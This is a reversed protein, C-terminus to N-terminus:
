YSWRFLTTFEQLNCSNVNCLVWCYKKTTRYFAGLIRCYKAFHEVPKRYKQVSIMRHDETLGFWALGPRRTIFLYAGYFCLAPQRHQAHVGSWFDVVWFYAPYWFICFKFIGKPNKFFFLIQQQFPCVWGVGLQYKLLRVISSFYQVSPTNSTSSKWSSRFRCLYFELLDRYLSGVSHARNEAVSPYLALGIRKVTLDTAEVTDGLDSVWWYLVPQCLCSIPEVFMLAWISDGTFDLKPLERKACNQNILNLSPTRNMNWYHLDPSPVSINFPKNKWKKEVYFIWPAHEVTYESLTVAALFRTGSAM